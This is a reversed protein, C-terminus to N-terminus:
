LASKIGDRFLDPSSLLKSLKMNCFFSSIIGKVDVDFEDFRVVLFLKYNITFYILKYDRLNTSSCYNNHIMLINLLINM